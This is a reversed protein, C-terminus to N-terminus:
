ENTVTEKNEVVTKAKLADEKSKVFKDWKSFFETKNELVEVGNQAIFENMLPNANLSQKTDNFAEFLKMADEYTNDVQGGNSKDSVFKLGDEIAASIEPDGGAFRQLLYNIDSNKGNANLMMQFSEDEGQPQVHQIGKDDEELHFTIPNVPIDLSSCIYERDGIYVGKYLPKVKEQVEGTEVNIKENM